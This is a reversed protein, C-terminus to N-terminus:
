VLPTLMSDPKDAKGADKPDPKDGAKESKKSKPESKEEEEPVVGGEVEPTLADPRGATVYPAEGAITRDEPIEEEKALEEASPPPEEVEEEGEKGEKKKKDQEEKSVTGVPNDKGYDEVTGKSAVVGDKEKIEPDSPKQTGVLDHEVEDLKDFDIDKNKAM